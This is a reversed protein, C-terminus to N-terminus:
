SALCTGRQMCLIAGAPKRMGPKLGRILDPNFDRHLKQEICGRESTIGNYEKPKIRDKLEGKPYLAVLLWDCLEKDIGESDSDLLM